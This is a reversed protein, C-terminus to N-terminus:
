VLGHHRLGNVLNACAEQEMMGRAERAYSGMHATMQVSECDVLSGSYPEVEFCDLAAGALRKEQLAAFLATEDILGGRAVNVLLASPKMLALREANILHHTTPSYPIHLTIIDSDMMLRELSVVEVGKEPTVSIEDHVLVRADFARLLHTVMRGIRGFGIVGVTQRALLSGMMAQWKGTRIARDSEPIRRALSLIHALTLEAVSRTPADPTNFVSIDLKKAAELNVNDLGIGCRSIVKLSKARRLVSETLPEVGAVMGVVQNDLFEVVQSETLRKGFPNLILEFGAAEVATREAFNKLDFSSTTFLLKRMNIPGAPLAKMSFQNSFFARSQDPGSIIPIGHAARDDSQLQGTPDYYVSSKGLGRAILATSTFPMGIVHWVPGSGLVLVERGAILSAPAWTDSPEGSYFHRGTELTQVSFSKGGVQRLHEIVALPDEDSYRSDSLMEQIYTPHIGYKGTLYCYPNTGWGYKAQM